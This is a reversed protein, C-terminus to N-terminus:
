LCQEELSRTEGFLRKNELRLVKSEKELDALRGVEVEHRGSELELLKKKEELVLIQGRAACLDEVTEHLRRRTTRLEVELASRKLDISRENQGVPPGQPQQGGSGAAMAEALVQNENHASQLEKEAEEVRKELYAKEEIRHKEAVKLEDRAAQM